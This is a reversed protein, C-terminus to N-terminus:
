GGEVDWLDSRRDREALQGTTVCRSTTFAAHAAQGDGPENRPSGAEDREPEQRQRDPEAERHARAQETRLPLLGQEADVPREGPRPERHDAQM